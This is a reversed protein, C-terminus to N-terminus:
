SGGVHDGEGHGEGDGYAVVSASLLATTSTQNNTPRIGILRLRHASSSQARRGAQAHDNAPRLWSLQIPAIANPTKSIIRPMAMENHYRSLTRGWKAAM